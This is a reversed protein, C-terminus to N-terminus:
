IKTVGQAWATVTTLMVLMLVMSLRQWVDRFGQQRLCSPPALRTTRRNM